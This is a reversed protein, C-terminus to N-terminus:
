QASKGRATKRTTAPAEEGEGTAEVTTVEKDLDLEPVEEDEGVEVLKLYGRELHYALPQEGLDAKDVEARDGQNLFDLNITAEIVARGRETM